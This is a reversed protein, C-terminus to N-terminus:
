AFTSHESHTLLFSTPTHQACDVKMRIDGEPLIKASVDSEETRTELRTSVRSGLETRVPYRQLVTVEGPRLVYTVRLTGM